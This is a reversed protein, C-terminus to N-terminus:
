LGVSQTKEANIAEAEKAAAKKSIKGTIKREKSFSRVNWFFYKNDAKGAIIKEETGESYVKGNSVHISNLGNHYTFYQTPWFRLLSQSWGLVNQHITIFGPDVLFM